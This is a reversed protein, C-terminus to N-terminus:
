QGVVQKTTIALTCSRDRRHAKCAEEKEGLRKLCAGRNNHAGAATAAPWQKMRLGHAYAEVADETQDTESLVWALNMYAEALNPNM